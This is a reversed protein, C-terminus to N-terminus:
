VWVALLAMLGWGFIALGIKYGMFKPSALAAPLLEILGIYIFSGLSMSLFIARTLMGPAGNQVGTTVWGIGIGLPTMSACFSLAFLTQLKSFKAYFIPVGLAFGDLLKHISVAIMLGVFGQTETESGVALGDFVSHVSLAALFIYATGLRKLHLNEAESGEGNAFRELALTVHNQGGGNHDHDHSETELAHQHVSGTPRAVEKKPVGEVNDANDKAAVYNDLAVDSAKENILKEHKHHKMHLLPDVVMKDLIILMFFVGIGILSSFPYDANPFDPNAAAFYDMFVDAADPAIHSFGAGLIVGASLASGIALIDMFQSKFKGEILWPLYSMFLTAPGIIIILVIRGILVESPVDGSDNMDGYGTNDTMNQAQVAGVGILLVSLATKLM